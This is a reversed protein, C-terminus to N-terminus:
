KADQDSVPGARQLPSAMPSALASGPTPYATLAKDSVTILGIASQYVAGGSSDRDYGRFIRKIDGNTTDLQYVGRGLFFFISDGSMMPRYTGTLLPLRTSWLLARSSFDIGGVDRGAAYIRSDDMGVITEDPEIPRKEEELATLRRLDTLLADSTARLDDETESM